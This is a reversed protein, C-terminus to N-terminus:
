IFLSEKHLPSLPKQKNSAYLFGGEIQKTITSNAAVFISENFILPGVIVSNIGIFSTSFFHPQKIVREELTATQGLSGGLTCGQMIKLNASSYVGDGVVISIPHPMYLGGYLKARYDIDVKFLLFNLWWIIKALPNVKLRHAQHAARYLSTCIFSPALVCRLKNKLSSNLGKNKAIFNLDKKIHKFM